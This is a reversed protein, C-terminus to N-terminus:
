VSNMTLWDTLSKQFPISLTSAYASQNLSNDEYFVLIVNIGPFMKFKKDTPKKRNNMTSKKSM